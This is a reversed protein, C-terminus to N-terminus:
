RRKRKEMHIFLHDYENDKDAAHHEHKVTKFDDWPVSRFDFFADGGEISTKVRTLYITEVLPSAMKYVESGGIIVCEEAGEHKARTVAHLFSAHVEAGPAEYSANRSLVLNLRGPLPRFREPISEWTLRGMIVPKGMTIAKFRRMDTSLRWPVKGEKGITNIRDAALIMSLKM